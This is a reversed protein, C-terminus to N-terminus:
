RALWECAARRSMPVARVELPEASTEAAVVQGRSIVRAYLAFRRAHGNEVVLM